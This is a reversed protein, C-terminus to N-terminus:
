HKDCLSLSIPGGGHDELQHSIRSTPCVFFGKVTRKGHKRLSRIINKSIGICRSGAVSASSTEANLM